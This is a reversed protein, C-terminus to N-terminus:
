LLLKKAGLHYAIKVALSGASGTAGNILVTQGAVFHLGVKGFSGM